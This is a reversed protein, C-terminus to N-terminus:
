RPLPLLLPLTTPQQRQLPLQVACGQSAATCQGSITDRKDSITM